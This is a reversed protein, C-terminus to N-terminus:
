DNDVIKIKAAMASGLTYSGDLSPLLKIKAVRTGDITANDIPKLKIKTQSAGAPITVTNGSLAKYDVGAKAAGAIKFRVTLPAGTDGTRIVKVKGNEGGEAALGDGTVEITVTPVMEPAAVTILVASSVTNIGSNDTSIATLAYTGPALAPLSFNYPPTQIKALNTANLYLELQSLTSDTASAAVAVTTATSPALQAGDPPSTIACTQMDGNARAAVTHITASNSVSTIGSNNTAVMTLLLEGVENSLTVFSKYFAGQGEGDTRHIGTTSRVRPSSRNVVSSMGAASATFQQILQGDAYFSVNQLPQGSADTASAVLAVMSDAAFQRGDLGSLLASSPPTGSAVVHIPIRATKKSGYIDTATASLYFDGVLAPTWTEHDRQATSDGLFLHSAPTYTQDDVDFEVTQLTGASILEVAVQLDITEGLIIRIDAPPSLINVGQIDVAPPAVILTLTAGPGAGAATGAGLSVSYTGDSGVAPTGSILGTVPNVSLGVPLGSAAYVTSGNTAAIQYSFFQGVQAAAAAPSTIIPVLPAPAPTIMLTLTGTGTGGANTASLSVTFTGAQTPTGGIGGTQPNISLGAPLGGANFATPGNTGTIQYSFPTGVIGSASAASSVVPAAPLIVVSFSASGTGGANTASFTIDFTGPQTPVGSVQGTNANVNLGPPLNAAGYSTPNNTAAIQYSYASGVQGGPPTVGTLTPTPPQVTIVLPANGTGAANTASVTVNYTGQTTPTGTIVGNTGLTLGPPLTNVGYSTPKFAATVPFNFTTGVQGSVAQASTVTPSVLLRYITGDGDPGGGATTGYLYGDSAEVLMGQPDNGDSGSGGVTIDVPATNQSSPRSNVTVTGSGVFSYLTTLVGTPTMQFVTGGVTGNGYATTGYFNGDSAQLLPASPEIGDPATFAHLITTTGAPTM